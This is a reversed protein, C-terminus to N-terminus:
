VQTALHLEIQEVDVLVDALVVVVVIPLQDTKVLVFWLCVPGKLHFTSKWLLNEDERVKELDEEYM